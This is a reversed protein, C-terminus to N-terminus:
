PHPYFKQVSPLMTVYFQLLFPTVSFNCGDECSNAATLHLETAKILSFHKAKCCCATRSTGRTLFLSSSLFPFIVVVLVVEREQSVSRSSGGILQNCIKCYLRSCRELRSHIGLHRLTVFRLYPGMERGSTCLIIHEIFEDRSM